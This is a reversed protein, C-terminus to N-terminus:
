MKKKAGVPVSDILKKLKRREIFYSLVLRIGGTRYHFKISHWIKQKESMEDYAIKNRIQQENM